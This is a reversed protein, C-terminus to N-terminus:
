VVVDVKTQRKHPQRVFSFSCFIPKKTARVQHSIDAKCIPLTIPKLRQHTLKTISQLTTLLM